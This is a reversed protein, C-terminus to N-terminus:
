ARSAATGEAARLLRDPGLDDVPLEPAEGAVLSRLVSAWLPAFTFAYTGGAVLFGPHGPLEGVVPMEDPTAGLPGAWVRLIRRSALAPLIRQALRLNGLMSPLSPASRGDLDVTRAPWGGGILVNGATVQKVSLGDGIHQVLHELTPELRETAHMQLAIPRVDLDIGALACVHRMWPGAVNVVAPASWTAGPTTVRWAGGARRIGGVPSFPHLEAGLRRAAAILAPTVLLPNAYGDDACFTAAAVSPGLLPLAARAADGDLLETALGHEREIERKAALEAVEHPHEAVTFGGSRRLEFVGGLEDDLQEWLASAAIQLPLFRRTDVPVEQGPRRAHVVQIHLNGATAGSGGRNPADRELLVVRRGDAALAHATAAGLVGAGIIVADATRTSV